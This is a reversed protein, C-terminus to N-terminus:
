GLLVVILWSEVVEVVVNLDAEQLALLHNSGTKIASRTRQTSPLIANALAFQFRAKKVDEEKQILTRHEDIQVLDRRLQM